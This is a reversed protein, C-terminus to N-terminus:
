LLSRRLKNMKINTAEAVAACFLVIVPVTVDLSPPKGIGPTLTFTFPVLMPAEVVALSFNVKDTGALAVPM